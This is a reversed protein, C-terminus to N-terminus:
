KGQQGVMPPVILGALGFFAMILPGLASGQLLSGEKIAAAVCVLVAGSLVVIVSVVVGVARIKRQQEAKKHEDDAKRHADKAAQHDDEARRHADETAQRTQQAHVHRLEEKSGAALETRDLAAQHALEGVRGLTEPWQANTKQFSKAVEGSVSPATPPQVPSASSKGNFGQMAQRTEDGSFIMPISAAANSAAEGSETPKM